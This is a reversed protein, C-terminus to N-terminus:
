PNITMYDCTIEEECTFNTEVTVTQTNWHKGSDGDEEIAEWCASDDPDGCDRDYNWFQIYVASTTIATGESLSDDFLFYVYEAWDRDDETTDISGDEDYDNKGPILPKGTIDDVGYEWEIYTESATDTLTTTVGGFGSSDYGGDCSIWASYGSCELTSMDVDDFEDDLYMRFKHVVMYNSYGTDPQTLNEYGHAHTADLPDECAITQTSDSELLELTAEDSGSSGRTPSSPTRSGAGFAITTIALSIFLAVFGLKITRFEM